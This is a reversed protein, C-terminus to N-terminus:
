PQPVAGKPTPGSAILAMRTIIEPPDGTNISKWIARSTGYRIYGKYGMCNRWNANAFIRVVSDNVFAAVFGGVVGYPTPGYNIERSPQPDGGYPVFTPWPYYPKLDVSYAFCELFDSRAIEFRVGVKHFYFYGDFDAADSSNKAFALDPILITSPDPWQVQEAAGGTVAPESNEGPERTAESAAIASTQPSMLIAVAAIALPLRHYRSGYKIHSNCMAGGVTSACAGLVARALTELM